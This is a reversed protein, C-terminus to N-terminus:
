KGFFSEPLSIEQAVPAQGPQPEVITICLRMGSHSPASDYLIVRGAGSPSTKGNPDYTYPKHTYPCAFEGVADYGKINRLEDVKEPLHHNQIEYLFFLGSIDQLRASCQDAGLTEEQSPQRSQPPTPRPKTNSSSTKSSGCGTFILTVMM